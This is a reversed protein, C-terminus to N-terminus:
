ENNLLFVRSFEEGFGDDSKCFVFLFCVLFGVVVVWVFFWFLVVFIVKPKEEFKEKYKAKSICINPINFGYLGSLELDPYTICLFLNKRENESLM